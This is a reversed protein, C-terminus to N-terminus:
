AEGKVAEMIKEFSSPKPILGDIGKGQFEKQDESIFGSMVYFRFPWNAGSDKIKQLLDLGSGDPMQMDSLIIGPKEDQCKSFAESVGYARLVEFGEDELQFAVLDCLEVEDDVVLVKQSM